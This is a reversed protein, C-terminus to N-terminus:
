TLRLGLDAARSRRTSRDWVVLELSRRLREPVRRPELPAFVVVRSGRKRLQPSLIRWAQSAAERRPLGFGLDSLVIVPQGTEPLEYRHWSARRRTPGTGTRPDDAFFGVHIQAAVLKRLEAVFDTQDRLFPQMSEGVDMLVQVNTDISLRHLRPL